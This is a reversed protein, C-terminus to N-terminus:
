TKLSWTIFYLLQLQPSYFPFRISFRSLLCDNSSFLCSYFNLSTEFKRRLSRNQPFLYSIRRKCTLLGSPLDAAYINHNVGISFKLKNQFPEAYKQIWTWLNPTYKQKKLHNNFDYREDSENSRSSGSKKTIYIRLHAIHRQIRAITTSEDDEESDTIRTKSSIEQYRRLRSILTRPSKSNIIRDIGSVDAM